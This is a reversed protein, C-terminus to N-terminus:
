PTEGELAAALRGMVDQTAILEAAYEVDAGPRIEGAM